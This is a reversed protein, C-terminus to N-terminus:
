TSQIKSNPSRMAQLIKQLDIFQHSLTHYLESLGTDELDGLYLYAAQGISIFYNLDVHRRIAIDPFLGCFLLSKDGAERLMKIKLTRSQRVAHLFDLAIVSELWHPSRSFRMLLYVLYSETPANLVHNTSVQAENVLAHWQCIETPQLILQEM